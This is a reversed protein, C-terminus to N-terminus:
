PQRTKFGSNRIQALTIPGQQTKQVRISQCGWVAKWLADYSYLAPDKGVQKLGRTGDRACLSPLRTSLLSPLFIFLSEMNLSSYSEKCHVILISPLTVWLRFVLWGSASTM